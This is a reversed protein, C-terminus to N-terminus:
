LVGHSHLSCFKSVFFARPLLEDINVRVEISLKCAKRLKKGNIEEVEIIFRTIIPWHNSLRAEVM